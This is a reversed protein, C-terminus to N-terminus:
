EKEFKVSKDVAQAAQAAGQAEIRAAAGHVNELQQHATQPPGGAVNSRHYMERYALYGMISLTAAALLLRTM